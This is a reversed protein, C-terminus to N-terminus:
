SLKMEGAHPLPAKGELTVDTTAFSGSHKRIKLTTYHDVAQVNNVVTVVDQFRVTPINEWTAPDQNVGTGWVAASLFDELAAQTQAIAEEQSFGTVPVLVAEVDVQTFTPDIVFFLYNVERREDFFTKVREKVLTGVTGGDAAVVAITTTKEEEDEETEANYNDLVTARGVGAVSRALIAVDRAIIPRDAFTQMTEALRGLYAEPEEADEGGETTGELEVATIFFLADVLSAEGDLGNGETGPEIAEIEVGHIETDGVPVVAELVTRFGILENGTRNLDIQTGAPITYGADDQVTFAMSGSAPTSTHPQVNAIEEGFRTLIEDAGESALGALPSFLVYVLSRIMVVETNAPNPEWGPFAAEMSAFIEEVLVEPNLELPIKFYSV